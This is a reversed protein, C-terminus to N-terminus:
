YNKLSCECILLIFRTVNSVRISDNEDTASPDLRYSKKFTIFQPVPPKKRWSPYEMMNGNSQLFFLEAVHEAHKEKLSKLRQLKHEYIRKKLAALDETTSGCSSSSDTIDLKLRKKAIPSSPHTSSTPLQHSLIPTSPTVNSTSQNPQSVVPIVSSM